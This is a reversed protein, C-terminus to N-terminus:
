GNQSGNLPIGLPPVPTSCSHRWRIPVSDYGSIQLCIGSAPSDRRRQQTVVPSRPYNAIHDVDQQGELDSDSRVAHNNILVLQLHQYFALSRRPCRDPPRHDRQQQRSSSCHPSVLPPRWVTTTCDRETERRGGYSAPRTQPVVLSQGLSKVLSLVEVV